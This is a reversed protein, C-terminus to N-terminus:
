FILSNSGAERHKKYPYEVLYNMCIPLLFGAYNASMNKLRNHAFLISFHTYMTNEHLILRAFLYM